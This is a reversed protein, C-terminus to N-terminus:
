QEVAEVDVGLTRLIAASQRVRELAVRYEGSHAREAALLGSHKRHRKQWFDVHEGDVAFCKCGGCVTPSRHAYNPERKFWPDTAGLTHCRANGPTLSMLCKGHEGYWIRLDGELVWAEMRDYAEQGVSEGIVARLRERHERVLEAMGGAIADSGTAQHLLFEVTRQRRVSDFSELLEPDNGIYGQETMLLSMHKFHQAIAPLMKPDTRLVYLAFTKRWQHTKIGGAKYRRLDVTGSPTKLEDPLQNLGGCQGAFRKMCHAIHNRSAPRVADAKRPRQLSSGTGPVLFLWPLRAADRWPALLHELRLLAQVPPPLYTAGAPRMGIVWRMMKGGHIKTVQSELFFLENLGTKSRETKVYRPLGTEPNVGARLAAIESIRMGTTGQVLTVCASAAYTILKRVERSNRTTDKNTEDPEPWAWWPAAEGPVTGFEFESLMTEVPRRVATAKASAPSTSLLLDRVVVIDDFPQGLWRNCEALMRLAVADPLPPIWGDETNAAEQAVSWPSDGDYPAEPMPEVGADELASSQRYITALVQLEFQLVGAAVKGAKGKERRQMSALIHDHYEWSAEADLQSFREYRNECMWRLLKALQARLNSAVTVADMTPGSRVDTMLSFAFKRCDELLDAWRPALLSEGNGLDIDWRLTGADATLGIKTVDLHWQPDTWLSRSSVKSQKREIEPLLHLLALM